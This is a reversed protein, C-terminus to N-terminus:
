GVAPSPFPFPECLYAQLTPLRAQSQKHMQWASVEQSHGRKYVLLGQAEPAQCNESVSGHPSPASTSTGWGAASPDDQAAAGRLRGPNRMSGLLGLRERISSADIANSTLTRPSSGIDFGGRIGQGSIIPLGEDCDSALSWNSSM